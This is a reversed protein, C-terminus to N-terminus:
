RHKSITEKLFKNAERRTRKIIKEVQGTRKRPKHPDTKIDLIKFWHYIVVVGKQYRDAIDLASLGRTFYLDELITKPDGGLLQKLQKLYRDRKTKSARKQIDPDEKYRKARAIAALAKNEPSHFKALNQERFESNQWQRKAAKSRVEPSSLAALVSARYEPNQWRRKVARSLRIFKADEQTERAISADSNHLPPNNDPQKIAPNNM